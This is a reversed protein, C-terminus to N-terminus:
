KMLRKLNDRSSCQEYDLIMKAKDRMGTVATTVLETCIEMLKMSVVRLLISHDETCIKEVAADHSPGEPIAQSM